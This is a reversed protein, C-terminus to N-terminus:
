PILRGIALVWDLGMSDSDERTDAGFAELEPECEPDTVESSDRRDMGSCEIGKDLRWPYM